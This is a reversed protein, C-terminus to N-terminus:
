SLRAELTALREELAALRAEARDARRRQYAAEVCLLEEYRISYLDGAEKTQRREVHTVPPELVIGRKDIVAPKDEVEVDAFEDGWEDHCWLGYQSVDVGHAECAEAVQQAVVGAHLRRRGILVFQRLRVDGWADLLEDPIDAVDRKIREDSSVNVAVSTYVGNWRNESNSYGLSVMKNNQFGTPGFFLQSTSTGATKCFAISHWNKGDSDGNVTGYNTWDPNYATSPGIASEIQIGGANTWAELTAVYNNAADSLRVMRTQKPTSNTDTTVDPIGDNKVIFSTWNQDTFELAVSGTFFKGSQITQITSLDVFNKTSSGTGGNAIPLVYASGAAIGTAYGSIDMSLAGWYTGNDSTPNVPGAVSGPGSQALSWYLKGNSGLVMRQAAYDASASWQWIGGDQRFSFDMSLQNLIGNFDNRPVPCGGASIPLSCEPPFGSAWSAAQTASPTANTAPISNKSGSGAFPEPIRNPQSQIAM